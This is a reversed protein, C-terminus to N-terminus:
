LKEVKRDIRRVGVGKLIGGIDLITTKILFIAFLSMTLFQFGWFRVVRGKFLRLILSKVKERVETFIGWVRKYGLYWRLVKYIYCISM